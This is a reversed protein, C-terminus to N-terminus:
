PHVEEPVNQAWAYKRPSSPRAVKSLRPTSPQMSYLSLWQVARPLGM